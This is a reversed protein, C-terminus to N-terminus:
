TKEGNSQVVPKVMVLDDKSADLTLLIKEPIQIIGKGALKADKIPKFKCQTTKMRLTEINVTQIKNKGYLENWHAIVTNDIRVVDSPALLGSLKEVMFQNVPTELFLSESEDSALFTEPQQDLAAGLSATKELPLNVEIKPADDNKPKTEQNIPSLQDSSNRTV